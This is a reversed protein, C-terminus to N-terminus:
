VRGQDFGSSLLQSRGAKRWFLRDWPGYNIGLFKRTQEDTAETLLSEKDGYAEYWFLEDMIQAAEMLIPIMQKEGESLSSLDATLPVSTYQDLKEAISMESADTTSEDAPPPSQCALIFLFLFLVVGYKM